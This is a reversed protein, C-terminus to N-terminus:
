KLDKFWKYYEQKDEERIIKVPLGWKHLQWNMLIRGMRGNGDVFPHIAEFGIHFAVVTGQKREVTDVFRSTLSNNVSEIWGDMLDPIAYWPKAERGGIYVVEKRWAGRKTRDLPQNKMLLEHTRLIATKSLLKKDRIFLWAKVSDDLGDRVGEIYNSEQLFDIVDIDLGQM